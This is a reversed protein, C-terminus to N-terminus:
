PSLFSSSSLPVYKQKTKQKDDPCLVPGKYTCRNPPKRPTLESNRLGMSLIYKKQNSHFCLNGNKVSSLLHCVSRNAFILEQAASLMRRTRTLLQLVSGRVDGARFSVASPASPTGPAHRSPRASGKQREKVSSKWLVAYLICFALTLSSVQKITETFCVKRLLFKQCNQSALDIEIGSQTSFLSRKEAISTFISLWHSNRRVSMPYIFVM